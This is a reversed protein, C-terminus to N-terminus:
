IVKIINNKSVYHLSIQNNDLPKLEIIGALIGNIDRIEIDIYNNGGQSKSAKESAVTAYLKSM